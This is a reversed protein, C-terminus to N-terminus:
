QRAAWSLFFDARETKKRERRHLFSELTLFFIYKSIANRSKLFHWKLSHSGCHGKKHHEFWFNSISTRWSNRAHFHVLSKLHMNIKEWGIGPPFFGKFTAAELFMLGYLMDWPEVNFKRWTEEAICSHMHSMWCNAWRGGKRRSFRFNTRKEGNEKEWASFFWETHSAKVDTPFAKGILSSRVFFYVRFM